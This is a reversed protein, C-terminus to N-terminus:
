RKRSRAAWRRRAGSCSRLTVFVCTRGSRACANSRALPSSRRTSRIARARWWWRPGGTHDRPMCAERHAAPSRRPWCVSARTWCRRPAAAARRSTAPRRVMPPRVTSASLDRFDVLRVERMRQQYAQYVVALVRLREGASAEAALQLAAPHVLNQKMLAVFALLDHAFADSRRVGDLPGLAAPDLDALVKRMVIWEQFGNLLLRDRNPANDRLIRSCFSHFTSIWAEGYDD